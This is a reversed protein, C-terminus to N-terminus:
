FGVYIWTRLWLNSVDYDKLKGQWPCGLKKHKCFVEIVNVERRAARDAYYQM